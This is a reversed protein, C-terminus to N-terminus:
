NESKDMEINYQKLKKHLNTREVDLEEATRSVNWNNKQLVQIIYQKEAEEKFDKLTKGDEYNLNTAVATTSEAALIQRPLDERQVIDTLSLILTREVVNRLERINGPWGYDSL